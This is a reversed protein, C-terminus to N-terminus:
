MVNFYFAEYLPNKISGGYFYGRYGVTPNKYYKPKVTTHYNVCIGTANKLSIRSGNKIIKSTYKQGNQYTVEISDIKYNKTTRIDIKQKGNKSLKKYSVMWNGKVLSTLDKSGVKFTKFVAEHKKYTVQCSLKYKKGNQIVNFSITTKEGNKVEYDFDPMNGDQKEDVLIANLGKVRTATYHKNTSKVNTIRATTSLNKIYIYGSGVTRQQTNNMYCGYYELTVKKPCAPEKSAASVVVPLALIVLLSALLSCLINRTRKM